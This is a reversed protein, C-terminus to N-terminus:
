PLAIISMSRGDSFQDKQMARRHSFFEGSFTDVEVFEVSEIVRRLRGAVYGPLDFKTNGGIESFYKESESDNQLFLEVFDEKVFYNNKTITPGVSAKISHPHSGISEMASVVSELIGYLAGKWGAHAAGIIQNDGDYLLVPACDATLVGLAVGREKTVIADAPTDFTTRARSAIITTSTHQQDVFLLRHNEIGLYRLAIQRNEAVNAKSDENQLSGNLLCLRGFSVGGFMGFFGHPVGLLLESRVLSPSANM